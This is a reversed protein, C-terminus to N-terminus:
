EVVMTTLRAVSVLKEREDSVRIDWVQVKRGVRIARVVGTVWGESVQALHNINLEIGVVKKDGLAFVAAMSGLTEALTASAGGHMIGYPQHIRGDVPMRASLTDDTYETFEISITELMTGGRNKNLLAIDIDKKWISM